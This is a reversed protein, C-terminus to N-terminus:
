PALPGDSSVYPQQLLQSAGSSPAAHGSVHHQVLVPRELTRVKM